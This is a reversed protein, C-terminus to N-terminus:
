RKFGGVPIKGNEKMWREREENWRKTAEGNQKELLKALNDTYWDIAEVFGKVIGDSMAQLQAELVVNLVEAIDRRDSDNLSM